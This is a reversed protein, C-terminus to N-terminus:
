TCGRHPGREWEDTHWIVPQRPGIEVDCGDPKGVVCVVRVMEAEPDRRVESGYVVTSGQRGRVRLADTSLPEVTFGKSELRLWFEGKRIDM